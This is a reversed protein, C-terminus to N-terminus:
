LNFDDKIATLYQLSARAHNVKEKDCRSLCMYVARASMFYNNELFEMVYETSYKSKLKSFLDRVERDRRAMSDKTIPRKRKQFYKYKPRTTIKTM